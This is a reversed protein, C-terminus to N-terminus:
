FPAFDARWGLGPIAVRLICSEKHNASAKAGLIALVLCM